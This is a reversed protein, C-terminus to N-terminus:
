GHLHHRRPPNHRLTPGPHTRGLTHSLSPRSRRPARHHPPRVLNTIHTAPTASSSTAPKAHTTSSADSAPAITTTLTPHLDPHLARARRRFADRIEDVTAARTVGLRARAEDLTM